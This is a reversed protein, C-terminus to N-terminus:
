FINTNEYFEKKREKWEERDFYEETDGDCTYESCIQCVEPFVGQNMEEIIKNLNNYIMEADDTFINGITKFREDYPYCIDCIIADGNPNLTVNMCDCARDLVPLDKSHILGEFEIGWNSNEWKNFIIINKNSQLVFMERWFPNKIDINTVKLPLEVDKFRLDFGIRKNNPLPLLPIICKITEMFMDFKDHGTMDKYMQQTDGYVSFFFTVPSKLSLIKIMDDQTINLGHTYIQIYNVRGDIYKLKEQWTPDLTIEGLSPTMDFRDIGIEILKDAAVKFDDLSWGGKLKKIKSYLCFKCNLECDEWTQFNVVPM